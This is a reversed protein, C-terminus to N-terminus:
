SDYTNNNVQYKPNSRVQKVAQAVRRRSRETARRSKSGKSANGSTTRRASAGGSSTRTGTTASGSSSGGTSSSSAPVTTAGTPATGGAYRNGSQGATRTGNSALTSNAYNSTTNALAVSANESGNGGNVSRGQGALMGPIISGQNFATASGGAALGSTISGTRSQFNKIGQLGYGAIRINRKMRDRAKRRAEVSKDRGARYQNRKAIKDMAEKQSNSHKMTYNDHMNARLRRRDDRRNRRQATKADKKENMKKLDGYKGRAHAIAGAAFMYPIAQKASDKLDRVTKAGSMGMISKIIAEMPFIAMVAFLFLLWNDSDAEFIDIATDILIVYLLAHVSQVFINVTYELIWTKLVKSQEIGMLKEIAYFLIVLPYIVILIAVTLLRKYYLIILLVLQFILIYWVIVLVLRHTEGARARITGILDINKETLAIAKDIKKIDENTKNKEECKVAYEIYADKLTAETEETVRKVTEEKIDSRATVIFGQVYFQYAQEASMGGAVSIELKRFIRTFDYTSGNIDKVKVDFGDRINLRHTIEQLEKINNNQEENIKSYSENLEEKYELLKSLYTTESDEGVQYQVDDNSVTITTLGVRSLDYNYISYIAHKRNERLLDVLIDNLKTIYKM